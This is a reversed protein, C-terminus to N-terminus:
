LKGRVLLVLAGPTGLLRMYLPIRCNKRWAKLARGEFRLFHSAYKVKLVSMKTNSVRQAYYLLWATPNEKRLREVADTYGSSVLECVTLIRPLIVFRHAKDIRDYVYDEPVYKEGPIEPFLNKKLIDSKFVLTTEGKFGRDYLGKLTTDSNDPFRAGYLTHVEDTGKHAILGAYADDYRIKEWENFIDDVANKTFYDDSDLCVFLPTDCELVGKNHARMKGGNEQYIYKIDVLGEEIFGGVEDKTGDDSGDDTIIWIFDRNTQMVLSRYVRKLLKRRNYTPTFVTLTHM